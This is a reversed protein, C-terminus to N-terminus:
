VADACSSAGSPGCTSTASCCTARTVTQDTGPVYARLVRLSVGDYEKRACETMPPKELDATVMTVAQPAFAINKRYVQSANLLSIAAANAPSIDVTQYQVAGDGTTGYDPRRAPVIAPYIPISTAGTAVDATVVFQRLAGTTQKTVRNVANV